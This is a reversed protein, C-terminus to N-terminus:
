RDLGPLSAVEAALYDVFARVRAPQYRRSPYLVRLVQEPAQWRPLVRVLSGDDLLDQVLWAPAMAPGLGERVAQRIAQASNIAYRGCLQIQRPGDPGQVEVTDGAALWAFRVFAHRPLDDIRRLPPHQALYAPAAVFYRPSRALTRAVATTPLPGGLRIALDVGEEVLDVYRDNLILELELQPHLALFRQAIANVHMEGFGLPANIRLLGAVQETLGRAHATAEAYGDLLRRAHECFRLGAETPTLRTTTREVLRVGLQQELAAVIKSVTPQSTGLDRAAASLSGLEITRVLVRLSRLTDMSM